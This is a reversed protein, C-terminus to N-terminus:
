LRGETIGRRKNTSGEILHTLSRYIYYEERQKRYQDDKIKVQEIITVKMDSLAHGPLNFHAGTAKTTDNSRVYGRHEALRAKLWRKTEEIYRQDCNDKSCEIMYVINSSECNTKKNIKWDTKRNIKIKTGEQIFPCAPCQKGCRFMGKIKKDPYAKKPNPLKARIIFNRINQKRKFGTVPPKPFVEELHRDQSVMARWHKAQIPPITPMRTDYLVAFVPRESQKNKM